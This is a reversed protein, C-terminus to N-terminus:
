KPQFGIFTPNLGRWKHMQRNLYVCWSCALGRHDIWRCLNVWPGWIDKM